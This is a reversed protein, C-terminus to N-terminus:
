DNITVKISNDSPDMKVSVSVGRKSAQNRVQQCMISPDIHYHTGAKLTFRTKSFWKEWDYKM